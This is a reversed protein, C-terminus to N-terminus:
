APAPPPADSVPGTLFDAASRVTAANASAPPLTGRASGGSKKYLLKADM